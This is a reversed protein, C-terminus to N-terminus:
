GGVSLLQPLSTRPGSSSVRLDGVVGRDNFGKLVGFVLIEFFWYLFSLSELGFGKNRKDSFLPVLLLLIGAGTQASEAGERSLQTQSGRCGRPDLGTDVHLM